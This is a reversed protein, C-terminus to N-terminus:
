SLPKDKTLNSLETIFFAKIDEKKANFIIGQLLKSNGGGKYNFTNKLSNKIQDLSVNLEGNVKILFRTLDNNVLYFASIINEKELKKILINLDDFSFKNFEAVYYNIKKNNTFNIISNKYNELFENKLLSYNEQIQKNQENFNEYKELLNSTNASLDTSIKNIIKDKQRYDLIADMGSKVVIRVNGNQKSWNIIKILGIEGTHKLHTGGCASYDFGDIEVVRMNKKVKPKRRFKITKIEDDNPFYSKIELNNQIVFNALNECAEIQEQNITDIKFDITIHDESAHFSLTEISYLRYFAASVLHQSTHQQMIKLRNEWNIKVLVEDSTINENLIHYIRDEKIYSKEVKIGNITGIDGNQGGVGDPYFITKDLLIHYKNDVKNNLLVMARLETLYQNEMYIKNTM